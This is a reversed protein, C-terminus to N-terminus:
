DKNCVLLVSAFMIQPIYLLLVIVFMLMASSDDYLPSMGELHAVSISM